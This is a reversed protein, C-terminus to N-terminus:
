HYPYTFFAIKRLKPNTMQYYPSIIRRQKGADEVLLMNQSSKGM